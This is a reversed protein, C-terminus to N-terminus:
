EHSLGGQNFKKRWKKEWLLFLRTFAYTQVAGAILVILHEGLTTKTYYLGEISGPKPEVSGLIGLGFLTGFLIVWGHKGKVMKEYFPYLILAILVGKMIQNFIVLLNPIQYPKFFDLAIREDAPLAGQFKLFAVATIIYIVTYILSFRVVYGWLEKNFIAEWKKM